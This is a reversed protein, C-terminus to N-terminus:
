SMPIIQTSIKGSAALTMSTSKKMTYKKRSKAHLEVSAEHRRAVGVIM